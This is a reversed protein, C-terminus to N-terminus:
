EYKYGDPIAKYKDIYEEPIDSRSRKFYKEYQLHYRNYQLMLNALETEPLISDVSNISKSLKHLYQLEKDTYSTNPSASNIDFIPFVKISKVNELIISFLMEALLNYRNVSQPDSFNIHTQHNKLTSILKSISSSNYTGSIFMLEIM